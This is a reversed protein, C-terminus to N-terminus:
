CVVQIKIMMVTLSKGYLLIYNEIHSFDDDLEEEIESELDQTSRAILLLVIVFRVLSTNM